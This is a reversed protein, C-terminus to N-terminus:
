NKYQEKQKEFYAIGDQNAIGRIHNEFMVEFIKEFTLNELFDLDNNHLSIMKNIYLGAVLDVDLDDRYIGQKIGTTINEKMRQYVVQKKKEMHIKFLEPYCKKLDFILAPSFRDFDDYVKRSIIMLQDIANEEYLGVDEIWTQMTYIDFGLTREILEAKNAVFQYLTKKSVGLERAVDDMTVSKYGYKLFLNRSDEVIKAYRENTKFDEL